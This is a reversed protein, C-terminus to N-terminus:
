VADHFIWHLPHTVPQPPLHNFFPTNTGQNPNLIVFYKMIIARTNLELIKLLNPKNMVGLYKEDPIKKTKFAPIKGQLHNAKEGHLSGFAPWLRNAQVRYSWQYKRRGIMLEWDEYVTVNAENESIQTLHKLADLQVSIKYTRNNQIVISHMQYQLETMHMYM